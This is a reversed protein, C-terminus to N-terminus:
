NQNFMDKMRKVNKNKYFRQYYININQIRFLFKEFFVNKFDNKTFSLDLSKHEIEQLKGDSSLQGEQLMYAACQTNIYQFKYGKNIADIWFKTDAVLKLKEDFGGVQIFVNSRMLVSQQTFLVIGERLLAKFAKYRASCTQIGIFEDAVNVYKVRGYAVDIEKNKELCNILDKYNTLWYDDDNIFTLYEYSSAFKMLAYNLAIYIGKCNEPEALVELHPYKIKLLDCKNVPAIIVHKVRGRGHEAVSQVTKELSDRNGLTATVVLIDQKM